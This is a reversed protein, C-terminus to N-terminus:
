LYGHTGASDFCYDKGRLCSLKNTNLIFNKENFDPLQFVKDLVSTITTGRFDCWTDFETPYM